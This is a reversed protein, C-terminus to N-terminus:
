KLYEVVEQALQVLEKNVVFYKNLHPIGNVTYTIPVTKLWPLNCDLEWDAKDIGDKYDGGPTIIGYEIYIEGKKNVKFIVQDKKNEEVSFQWVFEIFNSNFTQNSLFLPQPVNM